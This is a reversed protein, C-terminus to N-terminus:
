SLSPPVKGKGSLRSGRFRFSGGVESGQKLMYIGEEGRKEGVKKKGEVHM